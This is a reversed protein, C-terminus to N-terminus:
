TDAQWRLNKVGARSCISVDINYCFGPSIEVYIRHIKTFLLYALLMEEGSPLKACGSYPHLYPNSMHNSGM